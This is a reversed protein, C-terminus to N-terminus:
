VLFRVVSFISRSRCPLFLKWMRAWALRKGKKGSGESVGLRGGVASLVRTVTRREECVKETMELWIEEIGGGDEEDEGGGCGSKALDAM